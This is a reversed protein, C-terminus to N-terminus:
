RSINGAMRNIIQNIATLAGAASRYFEEFIFLQRRLEQRQQDNIAQTTTIAETLNRQFNGSQPSRSDNYGDLIWQEIGNSTMENLVIEIRGQITSDRAVGPPVPSSADLDAILDGLSNVLRQFQQITEPTLGDIGPTDPTEDVVPSVPEDFIPDLTAGYASTFQEVTCFNDGVTNPNVVCDANEWADIAAGECQFVTALTEGITAFAGPGIQTVDAITLVIPDNGLPDEPSLLNKISQAQELLNLAEQTLSTADQLQTLVAFIRDNGTRVYELEIISQLSRNYRIVGIAQDFVTQLGVDQLDRWRNIADIRAASTTQVNPDLGVASLTRSINNISNAMEITIFEVNNTQPNVAGNAALDRLGILADSVLFYDAENIPTTKSFVNVMDTLEANYADLVAQGTVEAFAPVTGVSDIQVRLVSSM